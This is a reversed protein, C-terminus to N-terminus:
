AVCMYLSGTSYFTFQWTVSVVFSAVSTGSNVPLFVAGGGTVSFAISQGGGVALRRIIFTQGQNTISPIPLVFSMSAIPTFIIMYPLPNTLTTTVGATYVSEFRKIQNNIQLVSSSCVTTGYLLSNNLQSSGNIYITEASSGIVISNNAVPPPANIGLVTCNSFNATGTSWAGAGIITNNSGTTITQGCGSGLFINSNGSTLLTASSSGICINSSGGTANYMSSSIPPSICINDGTASVVSLSSPDGIVVNGISGTGNGISIPATANGVSISRQTFANTGTWTNNTSLISAGSNANVYGVTAYQTTNTSINNGLSTTPHFTNFTTTSLPNLSVNPSIGSTNISLCTLGIGSSNSCGLTISTSIGNTGMVMTSGEMSESWWYNGGNRDDIRLRGVNSYLWLGNNAYRNINCLASYTLSNTIIGFQFGGSGAQGLNIFNTEGTGPSGNWGIELGSGTNITSPISISGCSFTYPLTGSSNSFLNSFLTGNITTTYFLSSGAPNSANFYAGNVVTSGTINPSTISLSDNIGSTTLVNSFTKTGTIIQSGNTIFQYGSPLIPILNFTKTGDIVQSGNTIFQFGSPLIPILTFTSQGQFLSTGTVTLNDVTLGGSLNIGGSITLLGLVSVNGAFQIYTSASLSTGVRTLYNANAYSLTIYSSISTFFDPNYIIGQFYQLPPPAYSM